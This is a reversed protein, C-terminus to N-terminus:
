MFLTYRFLVCEADFYIQKLTREFAADPDASNSLIFAIKLSKLVYKNAIQIGLILLLFEGCVLFACNYSNDGKCLFSKSSIQKFPNRIYLESLENSHHLPVM